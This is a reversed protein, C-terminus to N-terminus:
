NAAILGHQQLASVIAAIASRAEIDSLAGGSPLLIPPQQAGLVRTGNVRVESLHAIGIQWNTGDFRASEGAQLMVTLGRFPAVFMWGAETWGAVHNALGQWAGTPEQGIIFTQGEIPNAPPANLSVASAVPQVLLDLRQLAENHFLEKQTQGPLIFPLGLRPSNTM